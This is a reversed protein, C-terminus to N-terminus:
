HVIIRYNIQGKKKLESACEAIFDWNIGYNADARREVERLVTRADADSIKIARDEDYSLLIAQTVDDIGWPLGYTDEQSSLQECMEDIEEFTIPQCKDFYDSFEQPKVTNSEIQKQGLRLCALLIALQRENFNM